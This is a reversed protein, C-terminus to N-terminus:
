SDFSEVVVDCSLALRRLVERSSQSGVRLALSRKNRNMGIFLPGDGHDFPPGLPRAWDGELPEVKIVDAGADGLQMACFPAGDGQTIDFVRLGDLPGRM